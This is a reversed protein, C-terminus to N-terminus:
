YYSPMMSAFIAVYVIVMILSLVLTIGMTILYAKCFNKKSEKEKSSFAFVFLVILGACPIFTCLLLPLLYESIKVVEDTQPAEVPQYAQYGQFNNQPESYQSYTNQTEVTQNSFQGQENTSWNNNDM